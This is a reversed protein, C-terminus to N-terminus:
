QLISYTQNDTSQFIKSKYFNILYKSNARVTFPKSEDMLGASTLPYLYGSKSVKGEQNYLKFTIGPAFGNFNHGSKDNSINKYPIAEFSLYDKSLMEDPLTFHM